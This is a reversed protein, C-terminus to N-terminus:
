MAAGAWGLGPWVPPHFAQPPQFEIPEGESLKVIETSLSLMVKQRRLQQHCFSVSQGGLAEQSVHVRLQCLESSHRLWWASRSSPLSVNALSVLSIYLGSAMSKVSLLLTVLVPSGEGLSATKGEGAVGARQIPDCPRPTRLCWVTVEDPGWTATGSRERCHQPSDLRGRQLLEPEM